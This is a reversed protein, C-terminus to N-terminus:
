SFVIPPFELVDSFFGNLIHVFNDGSNLGQDSGNPIYIETKLPANYTDQFDGRHIDAHTIVVSDYEVDVQVVSDIRTDHFRRKSTDGLYGKAAEEREAVQKWYGNGPNVKVAETNIAASEFSRDDAENFYGKFLIWEYQDWPENATRSLLAEQPISTLKFGWETVGTKDGAAPAAADTEGVYPVDLEVETASIVKGILYTAGDIEVEDGVTGTVAGSFTVAKSGKVVSATGAPAAGDTVRELKVKDGMYNVGYDKQAYYCAIVAAADKADATAGGVYNYDSLTQRQGNTRGDDEICIRLRYETDPNIILGTGATGNYGLFTVQEAPAVYDKGEYASVTNGQIPSSLIAMGPGIGAAIVIREFKPLAAAAANTSIVNGKEDLVILDGKQIGPLTTAGSNSGDGICVRNVYNYNSM